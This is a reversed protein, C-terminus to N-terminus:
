PLREETGHSRSDLDSMYGIVLIAEPRWDAYSYLRVHSALFIILWTCPKLGCTTLPLQIRDPCSGAFAMGM